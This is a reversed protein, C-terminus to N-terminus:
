SRSGVCGSLGNDATPRECCQKAGDAASGTPGPFARRLITGHRAIVSSNESGCDSWECQVTLPARILLECSHTCVSAPATRRHPEALTAAAVMHSAGSRWILLVAGGDFELLSTHASLSPRLPSASSPCLPRTVSAYRAYSCRESVPTSVHIFLTQALHQYM